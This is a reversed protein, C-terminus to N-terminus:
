GALLILFLVQGTDFMNCVYIGFDRQLWIIDRDAGHMVQDFIMIHMILCRLSWVLNFLTFMFSLTEVKRKSPDKFVARLHPGIQVRLKLTDVVFDETRTSVQM